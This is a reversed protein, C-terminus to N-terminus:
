GGHGTGGSEGGPESKTCSITRCACLLLRRSTRPLATAGLSM